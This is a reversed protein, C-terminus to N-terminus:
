SAQLQNHATLEGADPVLTWWWTSIHAFDRWLRRLSVYSSYGSNSKLTRFNEESTMEWLTWIRMSKLCCWSVSCSPWIGPRSYHARELLSSRNCIARLFGGHSVFFATDPTSGLMACVHSANGFFHAEEFAGYVSAYCTDM